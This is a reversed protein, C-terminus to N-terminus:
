MPDPKAPRAIAMTIPLRGPKGFSDGSQFGCLMFLTKKPVAINHNPQNPNLPPEASEPEELAAIAAVPLLVTREM